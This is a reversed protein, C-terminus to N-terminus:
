PRATPAPTATVPTAEISSTRVPESTAAPSTQVAPAPAAQKTAAAPTVEIAPAPAPLAVRAPETAAAKAPLPESGEGTGMIQIANRNPVIHNDTPLVAASTLPKVLRPTVVFMLETQDTQFETSRFLAGMVPVEGLGPFKKLAETVNNKILGAVVFSQGDGLQVTTDIRRTSMSPLIATVGGITSFPSGTQSLESVESVLKLNVRGNDLVTPTFKLGVGFEKEELTIRTIGNAGPDQAVPIFIKGGSLFSASQGSIAVINPEALVRVLGDQKEADLTLTGRGIRLAQVLGAGGSLFNTILSYTNLGSSATRSLNVSSGLKDLLNKSVEAIKVELMVQQPSTIRLLNVVKKGDGYSTALTMVNDLKLADSVTGTLVIATDAGRVKIGTEEPMLEGLKIQLTEPDITVIIDKVLCRGDNGQLVVNMSGTRKGLFFLETPSLLTIETDAVGESVAQPAAAPPAVAGPVAPVGTTVPRGAPSAAQGGVILRAVPFDVRIVRSKGLALVTPADVAVTTCPKLVPAPRAPRAAPGAAPPTQAYASIALTAAALVAVPCSAKM